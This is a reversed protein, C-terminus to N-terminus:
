SFVVGRAEQSFHLRVKAAIQPDSMKDATEVHLTRGGPREADLRKKFEGKAEGPGLLFLSPAEGVLAIIRDYYANLQHAFKRDVVDDAQSGQSAHPLSSHIGDSRSGQKDAHSQIELIDDGAGASGVIVARRHDIWIGISNKM